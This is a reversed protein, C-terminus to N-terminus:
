DPAFPGEDLFRRLLCAFTRADAPPWGALSTEIDAALRRRTVAVIDDGDATLALLTARGDAPDPRRELLGTRELRDARRTVTTRDLGIERGLDAASLPGTRALGSLVPYTLDDVAEGLGETLRAHLNTRTSRRLLLGLAEAIDQGTSDNM